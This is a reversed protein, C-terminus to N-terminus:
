HNISSVFVSRATLKPIYSHAQLTQLFQRDAVPYVTINKSSDGYKHWPRPGCSALPGYAVSSGSRVRSTAAPHSDLITRFKSPRLGNTSTETRQDKLPRKMMVIARRSRPRMSTTIATPHALSRTPCPPGRPHQAHRRVPPWRPGIGRASVSPACDMRIRLPRGSPIPLRMIVRRHWWPMASRHQAAWKEGDFYQRSPTPAAHGRVPLVTSQQTEIPQADM